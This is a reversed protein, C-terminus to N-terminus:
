AGAGSATWLTDWYMLEYQQLLSAADGIAAPSVGRELGGQIVALAAEAFGPAEGAFLDFFAVGADDMGYRARLAKALRGCNKGWAPLNVLFAAAFEADSGYLALYAVFHTYAQAGALPRSEAPTAEAGLAQVFRGLAALAAAETKLSEGFFDGSGTGAYRHVLLAVSKLDSRIIRDQQTAFLILGNRSLRGAEVATVWPHTFLRQEITALDDRLRSVLDHATIM